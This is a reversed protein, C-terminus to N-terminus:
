TRLLWMYSIAVKPVTCIKYLVNGADCFTINSPASRSSSAPPIVRHQYDLGQWTALALDHTIM